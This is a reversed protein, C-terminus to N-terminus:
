AKSCSSRPSTSTSRTTCRMGPASHDGAGHHVHDAPDARDFHRGRRSPLQRQDRRDLRPERHVADHRPRTTAATCRFASSSCSSRSPLRCALARYERARQWGAIRACRRRDAALHCSEVTPWTSNMLPDGVVLRGAVYGSWSDDRIRLHVFIRVAGLAGHRRHARSGGVFRRHPRQRDRRCRRGEVTRPRAAAFRARLRGSVGRRVLIQSRASEVASAAREQDPRRHGPQVSLRLDRGCFGRVRALVAAPLVTLCRRCPAPSNRPVRM